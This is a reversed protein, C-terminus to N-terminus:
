RRIFLVNGLMGDKCFGVIGVEEKARRTPMGMIKGFEDPEGPYKGSLVGEVADLSGEFIRFQDPCPGHGELVYDIKGSFEAIIRKLMDRFVEMAPAGPLGLLTGRCVADGTLIYRDKRNVLGVSGATHGPMELVELDLGGLHFVDGERIPKMPFARDPAMPSFDEEPVYGRQVCLNAVCAIRDPLTSQAAMEMDAPHIYVEDFWANGGVHDGHGHSIVVTIPKDTIAEAFARINGYGIGTDFLLAKETGEVLTAVEQGVGFIRCVNPNVPYAVFHQNLSHVKM